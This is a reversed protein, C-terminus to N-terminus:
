RTVARDGNARRDARQHRLSGDLRRQGHVQRAAGARGANAVPDPFQRQRRRVGVRCLRRRRRRHDAAALGRVGSRRTRQRQVGDAPEPARRVRGPLDPHRCELRRWASGRRAAVRRLHLYGTPRQRLHVTGDAASRHRHHDFRERRAPNGDRAAGSWTNTWSLALLSGNASGLLSTAASPVAGANVRIQLTSSQGLRTAGHVAVVRVDFAGNPVDLAIQTAAGGTPLSALVQPQGSIGGEILYATPVIGASPAVWAFTVRNGTRSVIRLDTPATGTGSRVLLATSARGAGASNVARVRLDYVVGDTLGQIALPSGVGSPARPTWTAGGDLSYEFTTAAFAAEVAAPPAVTVALHGSTPTVGTVSPAPLTSLWSRSQIVGFGQEGEFWVATARGAADFAVDVNFASRQITSLNATTTWTGTAAEYRAALVRIGPSAVSRSWLVLANGAPDVAVAAPPYAFGPEGFGTPASWAAALADYRSVQTIRESAMSRTWAVVANGFPDIAVGAAENLGDSPSVTAPAGFALGAPARAAEVVGSRSWVAVADGAANVAVSAGALGPEPVALSLNGPASWTSTAALFRTSRVAQGVAHWVVVANGAADTALNLLSPTDATIREAATWTGSVATFRSAFVGTQPAGFVTWVALADGSPTVAVATAGAVPGASRSEPLAWADRAADYRATYVISSVMGSREAWIAIGNGGADAALRM